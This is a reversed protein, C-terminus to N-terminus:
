QKESYGLSALAGLIPGRPDDSRTLPKERQSNAIDFIENSISTPIQDVIRWYASVAYPDRYASPLRSLDTKLMDRLWSLFGKKEKSLLSALAQQRLEEPPPRVGKSSHESAIKEMEQDLRKCLDPYSTTLEKGWGPAATIGRSSANPDEGEHQELYFKNYYQFLSEWEPVVLTPGGNPTVLGTAKFFNEVGKVLWEGMHLLLKPLQAVLFEELWELFTQKGNKSPLATISSSLEGGKSSSPASGGAVLATPPSTSATSFEVRDM